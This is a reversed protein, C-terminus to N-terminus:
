GRADCSADPSGDTPVVRLLVDGADAYHMFVRISQRPTGFGRDPARAVNNPSANFEYRRGVHDPDTAVLFGRLERADVCGHLRTRRFPEIDLVLPQVPVIREIDGGRDLLVLQPALVTFRPNGSHRQTTVEMEIRAHELAEPLGFRLYRVEKGRVRATPLTDDFHARVEEGPELRVIRDEDLAAMPVVPEEAALKRHLWDVPGAFVPAAVGVVLMALLTRSAHGTRM